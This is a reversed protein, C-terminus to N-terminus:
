GYIIRLLIKYNAKCTSVIFSTKVVYLNNKNITTLFVIASINQVSVATVQYFRVHVYYTVIVHLVMLNKLALQKQEFGYGLCSCRYFVVYVNELGNRIKM